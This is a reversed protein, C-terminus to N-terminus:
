DKEHKRDGFAEKLEEEQERSLSSRVVTAETGEVAALVQGRTM